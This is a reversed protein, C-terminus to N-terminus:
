SIDQRWGHATLWALVTELVGAATLASTDVVLDAAAFANRLRYRQNAYVSALWTPSRRERLHELDVDLVVLVDPHSRMWLNPVASHEQAVIRAAFGRARLAEALTSKGSACPGVIVVTAGPTGPATEHM